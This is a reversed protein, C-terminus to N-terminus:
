RENDLVKVREELQDIQVQADAILEYDPNPKLEERDIVDELRDVQSQITDRITLTMVPM